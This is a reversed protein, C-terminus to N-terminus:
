RTDRDNTKHSKRRFKSPMTHRTIQATQTESKVNRSEMKSVRDGSPHWFNRPFRAAPDRNTTPAPVNHNKAAPSRLKTILAAAPFTSYQYTYTGENQNFTQLESSPSLLVKNYPVSLLNGVFFRPTWLM